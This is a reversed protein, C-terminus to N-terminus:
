VPQAQMICDHIAKFIEADKLNFAEDIFRCAGLLEASMKIGQIVEPSFRSHLHRFCMFPLHRTKEDTKVQTLLELMRSGDFDEGCIILRIRRSKLLSVADEVTQALIIGYNDGIAKHLREVAEPVECILINDSPV